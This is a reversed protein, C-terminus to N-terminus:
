STSCSTAPAPYHLAKLWLHGFEHAIVAEEAAGTGALTPNILVFRLTKDPQKLNISMAQANRYQAVFEPNMFFSSLVDRYETPQRGAEVRLLVVKSVDKKEIASQWLLLPGSLLVQALLLAHVYLITVLSRDCAIKPRM